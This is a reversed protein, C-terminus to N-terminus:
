LLQKYLTCVILYNFMGIKSTQSLLLAKLKLAQLQWKTIHPKQKPKRSINPFIITLFYFSSLLRKNIPQVEVFVFQSVLPGFEKLVFGCKIKCFRM